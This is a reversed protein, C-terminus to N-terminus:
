GTESGREVLRGANMLFHRKAMRDQQQSDHTVLLISIGQESQQHLLSEIRATMDADLSATPEDLLLAQPKGVLARAIALRHREGTSLRSVEWNLADPLGVQTLLPGLDPESDFHDGVRDGWWGSEAPVYAVRRRWEYAPMQDRNSEGILATGENPDLDAIARLLLSKGAGSPGMLAICEGPSISLDIPGILATRINNIRLM